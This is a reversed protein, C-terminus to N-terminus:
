PNVVDACEELEELLDNLDAPVPYSATTQWAAPTGSFLDSMYQSANTGLMNEPAVGVAEESLIAGNRNGISETVGVDTRYYNNEFTHTINATAFNGVISGNNAGGKKEITGAVVCNRITSTKYCYGIIGGTGKANSVISGSFLCNEIIVNGSDGGGLIGGIGDGNGTTKDIIRGAFVCNRIEPTVNDRLKTSGAIGGTMWIKLGSNVLIADSYLNEMKSGQARGIFTGLMQGTKATSNHEFYSNVIALNKVTAKLAYLIFGGDRDKTYYLGSIFHGRGDLTGKFSKTESPGLPTWPYQPATEDWDEANGTNMVMNVALKITKGEFTKGDTNILQILGYVQDASTLIFENKNDDYWTADPTGDYYSIKIQGCECVHDANNTDHPAKGTVDSCGGVVCEHWHENDDYVWAAKAAHVHVCAVNSIVTASQVGTM